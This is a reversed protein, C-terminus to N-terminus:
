ELETLLNVQGGSVSPLSFYFTAGENIKAEAWIQGNLRNVIRKVLALGIGTGDYEEGHLRQFVSFLKDQFAMDFGVGNDRVYYICENEKPYGGVEILAAERLKTFKVANNLINGCVRTMLSRDGMCGPLPGIELKMARDPHDRQLEKWVDLFIGEMDLSTISPNAKGLRSFNLLADILQTMKETNSRILRFKNRADENFQIEENKLIMRSYGDIARLPAHLDHSVHFCFNELERNVSELQRTREELAAEMRKRAVMETELEATRIKVRKELIRHAERLEAEAKRRAKQEEAEALARRVAPVLRQQLRNKLVYDKAGQTLIEIARDESVAGTVLIFPTGPCRRRAEALASAGDYRPLDYDSLIIDPPSDQLERVFEAETAAMKVSFTFGAEQLEFQILEADTPNDELILIRLPEAM